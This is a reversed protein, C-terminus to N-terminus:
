GTCCVPQRAGAAEPPAARRLCYHGPWLVHPAGWESQRVSSGGSAPSSQLNNGSLQSFDKVTAFMMM